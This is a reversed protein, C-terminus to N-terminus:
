SRGSVFGVIERVGKMTESAIARARESGDALISDVYASDAVLRKMEAGIPGLKEVALDVLASKFASFQAGGFESLVEDKSRGSLAAFIGVLNDAEPRKALGAQESTETGTAGGALRAASRSAFHAATASRSALRAAAAGDSGGAATAVSGLRVSRLRDAVLLFHFSFVAQWM